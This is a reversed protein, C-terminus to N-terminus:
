GTSFQASGSLLKRYLSPASSSAVGLRVWYAEASITPLVVFGHKM